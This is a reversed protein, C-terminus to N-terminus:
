LGWTKAADRAHFENRCYPCMLKVSAYAPDFCTREAHYVGECKPCRLFILKPEGLKPVEM